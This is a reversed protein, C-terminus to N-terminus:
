DSTPSQPLRSLYDELVHSVEKPRLSRNVIVLSGTGWAVALISESPSAPKLALTTAVLTAVVDRPPTELIEKRGAIEILRIQEYPVEDGDGAHIYMADRDFSVMVWGLELGEVGSSSLVEGFLVRRGVFQVVGEFDIGFRAYFKKATSWDARAGVLRGARLARTRTVYGCGGCRVTDPGTM